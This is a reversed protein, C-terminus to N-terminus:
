IEGTILRWAVSGEKPIAPLNSRKFWKAEEIENEQPVIEGCKYDAKFALMLQNPFPWAQSTIYRINQVEIGVEERIERIVAQESSEGPEVFGALCTYIDNNREIHKALLIEDDKEILVIVAPTVQPYFKEKCKPCYINKLKEKLQNIQEDKKEIINMLNNIQKISENKNMTIQYKLDQIESKQTSITKNAKRMTAARRSFLWVGSPMRM